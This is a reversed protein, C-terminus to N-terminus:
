RRSSVRSASHGRFDAVGRGKFITDRCKNTSNATPIILIQEPFGFQSYQLCETMYAYRRRLEHLQLVPINVIKATQEWAEEHWGPLSIDALNVIKNICFNCENLVKQQRLCPVVGLDGLIELAESYYVMRMMTGVLEVWRVERGTSKIFAPLYDSIRLILRAIFRASGDASVPMAAGLVTSAGLGLFGNVTTAHSKHWPGTDCASLLVIPPSVVSGRLDWVDVAESGVQLKGINIDMQHSGHGDIVVIPSVVSKLADVFSSRSPADIFEITPKNRAQSRMFNLRHEMVHYIPDTKLLTRIVTIRAIDSPRVQVEGHSLLNQFVLGGPTIPVRSTHFRMSLPIDDVTSLEIPLDSVVKVHSHYQRVVKRYPTVINGALADGISRLMRSATEHKKMPANKRTRWCQEFSRLELARVDGDVTAVICPAINLSTELAVLASLLTHEEWRGYILRSAVTETTGKGEPSVAPAWANKRLYKWTRAASQQEQHPLKVDHPFSVRSMGRFMSPTLIILSTRDIHETPNRSKTLYDRISTVLECVESVAKKVDDSHHPTAPLFSVGELGLATLVSVSPSTWIHSKIQGEHNTSNTYRRCRHFGNLLNVLDLDGRSKAFLIVRNALEHFTEPTVASIGVFGDQIDGDGGCHIHLIPGDCGSRLRVAYPLTEPCSVLCAFPHSSRFPPLGIGSASEILRIERNSRGDARATRAANIPLCLELYKTPLRALGQLVSKMPLLRKPFGQFLTLQQNEGDPLPLFYSITSDFGSQSIATPQTM